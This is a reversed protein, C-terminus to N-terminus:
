PAGALRDSVLGIYVEELHSQGRQLFKLGAFGTAVNQFALLAELETQPKVSASRIPRM